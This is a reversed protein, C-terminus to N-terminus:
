HNHVRIQVVKSQWQWVAWVCVHVAGDLRHIAENRILRWMPLSDLALHVFAFVQHVHGRELTFLKSAVLEKTKYHRSALLKLSRSQLEARPGGALVIRPTWVSSNLILHVGELTSRWATKTNNCHDAQWTSEQQSNASSSKSRFGTTKRESLTVSGAFSPKYSSLKFVPQVASKSFWLTLCVTKGNLTRSGAFASWTSNIWCEFM